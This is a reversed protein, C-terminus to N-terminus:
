EASNVLPPLILGGRKIYNTLFDFDFDTDSYNQLRLSTSTAHELLFDKRKEWDARAGNIVIVGGSNIYNKIFGMSYSYKSLDIELPKEKISSYITTYDLLSPDTPIENSKLAIFNAEDHLYKELLTLDTNSPFKDMFFPIVLNNFWAEIKFRRKCMKWDVTSAIFRYGAFNNSVLETLGILMTPFCEDRRGVAHALEHILVGESYPPQLSFVHDNIEIKLLTCIGDFDGLQDDVCEKDPVIEIDLKKSLLDNIKILIRKINRVRHEVVYSLYDFDLLPNNELIEIEKQVLLQTKTVLENLREDKYEAYVKYDAYLPNSLFIPAFYITLILINKINKKMVLVMLIILYHCNKSKSVIKAM